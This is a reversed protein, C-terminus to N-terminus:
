TGARRINNRLKSGIGTLSWMHFATVYRGDEYWGSSLRRLPRFNSYLYPSQDFIRRTTPAGISLRLVHIERAGRIRYLRGPKVKMFRQILKSVEGISSNPVIQREISWGM